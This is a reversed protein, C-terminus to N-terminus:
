FRLGSINPWHWHPRSRENHLSYLHPFLINWYLRRSFFFSWIVWMIFVHEQSQRINDKFVLMLDICAGPALNIIAEPPRCDLSWRFLRNESSRSSIATVVQLLRFTSIKDLSLSMIMVYCDWATRAPNWGDVAHRAKHPGPLYSQPTVLCQQGKIGM